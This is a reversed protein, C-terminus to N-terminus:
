HCNQQHEVVLHKVLFAVAIAGQVVLVAKKLMEVLVEVAVVVLLWSTSLM